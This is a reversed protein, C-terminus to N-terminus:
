SGATTAPGAAPGRNCRKTISQNIRANFVQLRFPQLNKQQTLLFWARVSSSVPIVIM